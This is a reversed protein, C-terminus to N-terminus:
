PAMSGLAKEFMSPLDIEGRAGVSLSWELIGEIIQPREDDPRWREALRADIDVIWYEEVGAELYLRRKKGRDRSATSPSLVEVALLPIGAEKWNRIPADPDRPLVFLDPVVLTQRGLEIDGGVPFIELDERPDLADRLIDYLTKVVRQHDIRPTPTVVHQGNLLEHKLGDEPLAHLQGITTILSEAPMGM